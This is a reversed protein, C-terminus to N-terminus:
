PNVEPSKLVTILVDRRKQFGLKEYVRIANTNNAFVHLFPIEGRTLIERSLRHMLGRALGRGRYEPHTCVASIETFGTLHMREGAMAVLTNGDRVGYFKGLDAAREKFPGPETLRVLELMEPQDSEQLEFIDPEPSPALNQCTMQVAQISRLVMWAAPVDEPAVNVLAAIGEPQLVRALTEFAHPTAERVAAFPTYRLPYRRAFDDGEAINAQATTLAHWVPNELPHSM